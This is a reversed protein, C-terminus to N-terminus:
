DTTTLEWSTGARDTWRYVGKAIISINAYHYDKLKHEPKDRVYEAVIPDPSADVQEAYPLYYIKDNPAVFAYIKGDADFKFTAETEGDCFYEPCDESVEFKNPEGSSPTLTWSDGQRITWRYVGSDADVVSITAYHYDKLKDQPKNRVFEGIVEEPEPEVSEEEDEEKFDEPTLM